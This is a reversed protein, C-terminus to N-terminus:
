GPMGGSSRLLKGCAQSDAPIVKGSGLLSGLYAPAPFTSFHRERVVAKSPQKQLFAIL